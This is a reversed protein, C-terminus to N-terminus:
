SWRATLTVEHVYGMDPVSEGGDDHLEADLGRERLYGAVMELGRMEATYKETTLDSASPHLKWVCWEFAGESAAKRLLAPLHEVRETYFKDAAFAVRTEREARQKDIAAANRAKQDAFAATATKNLDDRM